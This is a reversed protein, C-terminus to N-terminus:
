KVLFNERGEKTKSDLIVEVEYWEERYILKPARWEPAEIGERLHYAELLSSVHFM